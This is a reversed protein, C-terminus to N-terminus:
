RDHSAGPGTRDRTRHVEVRTRPARGPLGDAADGEGVERTEGVEHGPMLPERDQERGRKPKTM